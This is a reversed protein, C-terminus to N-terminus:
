SIAPHRKLLSRQRRAQHLAAVLLLLQVAGDRRAERVPRPLLLLLLLLLTRAAGCTLLLEPRQTHPPKFALANGGGTPHGDSLGGQLLAGDRCCDRVVGGLISVLQVVGDRTGVSDSTVRNAAEVVCPCCDGAWPLEFVTERESLMRNVNQGRPEHNPGSLASKGSATERERV